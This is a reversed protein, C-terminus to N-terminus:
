FIGDSTFKVLQYNRPDSVYVINEYVTVDAPKRLGEDTSGYSGFSLLFEGDTTFKQIRHNNTDAVYVM